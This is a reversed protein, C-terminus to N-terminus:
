VYTKMRHNRLVVSVQHCLNSRTMGIIEILRDIVLIGRFDSIRRNGSEFIANERSADDRVAEGVGDGVAYIGM